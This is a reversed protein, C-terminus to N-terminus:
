EKNQAKTAADIEAHTHRVGPKFPVEPERTDPTGDDIVQNGTLGMESKTKEVQKFEGKPLEQVAVPLKGLPPAHKPDNMQRWVAVRGMDVAEKRVRSVVEDDLDIVFVELKGATPEFSMYDQELLLAAQTLLVEQEMPPFHRLQVLGKHDRTIILMKTEDTQM